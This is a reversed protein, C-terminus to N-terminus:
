MVYEHFFIAYAVLNPDQLKDRRGKWRAVMDAIHDLTHYHRQKESYRRTIEDWWREVSLPSSKPVFPTGCVSFWVTKLLTRATDQSTMNNQFDSFMLHTNPYREM